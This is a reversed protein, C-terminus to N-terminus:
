SYIKRLSYRTGSSRTYAGNPDAIMVITYTRHNKDSFKGQVTGIIQM